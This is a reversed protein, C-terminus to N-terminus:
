SDGIIRTGLLNLDEAEYEEWVIEENRYRLLVEKGRAGDVNHEYSINGIEKAFSKLDSGKAFGALQSAYNIRTDVIKKVGANTLLDFFQEASKGAFGITYLKIM